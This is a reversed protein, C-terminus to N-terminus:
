SLGRITSNELRPRWSCQGISLKLLDRAGLVIKSSRKLGQEVEEKRSYRKGPNTGSM